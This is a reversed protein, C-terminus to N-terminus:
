LNTYREIIKEAKENASRYDDNWCDITKLLFDSDELERHYNFDLILIDKEKSDSEVVETSSEISLNIKYNEYSYQFVAKVKSLNDDSWDGERILKHKLKSVVNPLDIRFTFNNGLHKYPIHPLTQVYRLVIKSPESFLDSDDGTVTVSLKNPQLIIDVNNVYLCRAFGPTIILPDAIKWESDVIERQVLWDPNLISPNHQDAVVVCSSGFLRM